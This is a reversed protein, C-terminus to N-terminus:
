EDRRILFIVQILRADRDEGFNNYMNRSHVM